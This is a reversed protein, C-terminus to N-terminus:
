GWEAKLLDMWAGVKARLYTDSCRVMLVGFKSRWTRGTLKNSNSKRFFKIQGPEINLESSWFRRLEDLSQDAHFQVSYDVPNRSFRTIWVQALKVVAPDSNCLAVTHRGRKTGEGIYMCIFDRFTPEMILDPYMKVGEEYATERKKRAQNRNADSARQRAASQKRTEPIPIDKVWYFVTTRSLALREAIEDITLRTDLRMKIAKQRIYDAHAVFM